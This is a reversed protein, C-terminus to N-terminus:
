TAVSFWLAADQFIAQRPTQGIDEQVTDLWKALDSEVAPSSDPMGAFSRFNSDMQGTAMNAIFAAGEPVKHVPHERMLAKYNPQGQLNGEFSKRVDYSWRVDRAVVVGYAYIFKGEM